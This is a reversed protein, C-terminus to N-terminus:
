EEIDRDAMEEPELTRGDVWLAAAVLALIDAAVDHRRQQLRVFCRNIWEHREM